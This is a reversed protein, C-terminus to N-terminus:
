PPEVKPSEELQNCAIAVSSHIQCCVPQGYRGPRTEEQVITIEEMVCPDLPFAKRRKVGVIARLRRGGGSEDVVWAGQPIVVRQVTRGQYARAYVRRVLQRLPPPGSPPPFSRQSLEQDYSDTCVQELERVARRGVPAVTLETDLAESDGKKLEAFASRCQSQDIGAYLGEGLPKATAFARRLARVASSVQQLTEARVITLELPERWDERVYALAEESSVKEYLSLLISPDDLDDIFVREVARKAQEHFDREAPTADKHLFPVIVGAIALIKEV